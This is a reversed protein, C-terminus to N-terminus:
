PAALAIWVGSLYIVEQFEKSTYQTVAGTKIREMDWWRCEDLKGFIAQFIDIKDM